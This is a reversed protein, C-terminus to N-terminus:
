SAEQNYKNASEDIYRRLDSPRIRPTRDSVMVFAIKGDDVLRRFTRLSVGLAQAAQNYTLLPELMGLDVGAKPTLLKKKTALRSSARTPSGYNPEFKPPGVIHGQDM